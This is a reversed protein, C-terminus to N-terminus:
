HCITSLELSTFYALANTRPLCFKVRSPLVWVLSLSLVSNAKKEVILSLCFHKIVYLERAM